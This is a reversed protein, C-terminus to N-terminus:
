RDREIRLVSYHTTGGPARVEVTDGVRHGLLAKAMPTTSSIWSEHLRAGIPDTITYTEPRARGDMQLTVRDGVEVVDPDHPVEELPISTTLAEALRSREARAALVRAMAVPDNSSLAAAVLAPLMEHDLELLRRELTRRTTQSMAPQMVDGRTPGSFRFPQDSGGVLRGPVVKNM